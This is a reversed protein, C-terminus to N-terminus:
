IEQGKEKALQEAIQKYEKAMSEYISASLKNSMKGFVHLQEEVKEGYRKIIEERYKLRNGEMFCNCRGCQAHVNKENFEVGRNSGKPLYHGADFSRWKGRHTCTICTCYGWEDADRLRIMISFWKWAKAKSTKFTM